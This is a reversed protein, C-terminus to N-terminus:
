TTSVLTNIPLSKLKSRSGTPWLVDELVNCIATEAERWEPSSNAPPLKLSPKRELKGEIEAEHQVPRYRTEMEATVQGIENHHEESLQQTNLEGTQTGTAAPQQPCSDSQPTHKKKCRSRHNYFSADSAFRDRSAGCYDCTVLVQKHRSTTPPRARAPLPQSTSSRNECHLPPTPSSEMHCIDQMKSSSSRTTVM